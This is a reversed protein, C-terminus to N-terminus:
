EDAEHHDAPKGMRDLERVSIGAEIARMHMRHAAEARQNGRHKYYWNVLLGLVGIAIGAWMGLNSSQWWSVVTVASGAGVAKSSMSTITADVTEQRM